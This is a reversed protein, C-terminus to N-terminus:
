YFGISRCDGVSFPASNQENLIEAIELFIRYQASLLNQGSTGSALRQKEDSSGTAGPELRNIKESIKQSASQYDHDGDNIIESHSSKKGVKDRGLAPNVTEGIVNRTTAEAGSFHYQTDNHLVIHGTVDDGRNLKTVYKASFKDNPRFHGRRLVTKGHFHQGMKSDNEKIPYNREEVGANSRKLNVDFDLTLRVLAMHGLEVDETDMDNHSTRASDSTKQANSTILGMRETISEVSMAKELISPTTKWIGGDLWLLDRRPRNRSKRFPPPGFGFLPPNFTPTPAHVSDTAKRRKGIPPPGFGFMVPYLSPPYLTPRPPRTPPVEKEWPKVKPKPKFVPKMPQNTLKKKPKPVLKTKLEATPKNSNASTKKEHNKSSIQKQKNAPENEAMDRTDTEPAATTQSFTPPSSLIPRPRIAELQDDSPLDAQLLSNKQRLSDCSSAPHPLVEYVSNCVDGYEPDCCSWPAWKVLLSGDEQLMNDYAANLQYSRGRGPVDERRVWSTTMWDEHGWVGCCRSAQQLRDLFAKQQPQDRYGDMAATLRSQLGASLRGPATFTVGAAATTVGASVLVALVWGLLSSQFRHRSWWYGCDHCLKAGVLHLPGATLSAALLLRHWCDVARAGYLAQDRRWRPVASLLLVLVAEALVAVLLNLFCLVRGLSARGSDSLAVECSGM